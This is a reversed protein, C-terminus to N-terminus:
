NWFKTKPLIILPQFWSRRNSPVYACKAFSFWYWFLPLLLTNKIAACNGMSSLFGLGFSILLFFHLTLGLSIPFCCSWCWRCWISEPGCCEMSSFWWFFVFHFGEWNRFVLFPNPLFFPLSVIEGWVFASPISGKQKFIIYFLLIGVYGLFRM